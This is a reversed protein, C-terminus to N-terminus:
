REVRLETEAAAALYFVVLAFQPDLVATLPNQRFGDLDVMREAVFSVM